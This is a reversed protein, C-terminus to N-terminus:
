PATFTVGCWRTFPMRPIQAKKAACGQLLAPLRRNYNIFLAFTPSEWKKRQHGAKTTKRRCAMTQLAM